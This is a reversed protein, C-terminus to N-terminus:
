GTCERITMMMVGGFSRFLMLLEKVFTKPIKFVTMAFVPIAQAVAKLLVDKGGM